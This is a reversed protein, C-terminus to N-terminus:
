VVSQLSPCHHFVQQFFFLCKWMTVPRYHIVQSGGSAGAIEPSAVVNGGLSYKEGPSRPSSESKPGEYYYAVM